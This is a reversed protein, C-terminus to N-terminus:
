HGNAPETARKIELFRLLGTETIMGVMQNGRMVLLQGINEQRMKKLAEALSTEPPVTYSPKLPVMAEKVTKKWQEEESLGKVDKLSVMGLVTGDTTVPFGRYAYHLFYDSILRKIPLESPATVVDKFMIDKVHTAELSQRVALEHYSAEAVGRLFMGIFVLWLGGILVGAFIELGGLVMMAIAFGNGISSALKTAKAISGTKWWWFARLMRGGDLPLGPVLNFVGLAVNAWALYGFIDVIM